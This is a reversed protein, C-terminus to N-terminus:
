RIDIMLTDKASKFEFKADDWSPPGFQGSANNSFGYDETPIGLFNTDFEDDDDEDHFVKIAYTGFIINKFTWVAEHNTIQVKVGIGPESDAEYEAQSQNLAVMVKGNENELGTIIVTLAGSGAPEQAPLLATVCIICVLLFSYFRESRKQIKLFNERM